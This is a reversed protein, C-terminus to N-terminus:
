AAPMKVMTRWSLPAVGADIRVKFVAGDVTFGQEQEIFPKDNGDLYAVELTDHMAQNALMFSAGSFADEDLRPDSVVDLRGRIPNPVRADVGAPDFEALLLSRAALENAVSTLLYKPAINLTAKGDKQTRMKAMAEGISAVSLAAATAINKHSNHFLDTGDSMKPNGSLVAFVLDGVTRIAARGMLRPIRTIAQLDDNIVAQRTISFLKGYTALVIEEGTDGITGYKYEAGEPVVDLNGFTGLDVRKAPRFDSLRGKSTFKEFSEEAEEYGKLMSKHAVDQLIYGFDSTSHTFAMGVMAMRDGSAVIGRDHLSARALEQMTFGNYRNDKEEAELGARAMLSAKISDGVLNGNGVHVTATPTAQAGLADLLQDKAKDVTVSMDLLCSNMLDSQSTHGAFLNSIATRRQQEQQEFEARLAVPDQAPASPQPAPAAAQPAEPAAPRVEPEPATTTAKASAAPEFFRKASKPMNAYERQSNLKAAVELAPTLQNAFGAAVAEAGTFWTEAKLLTKIEDETKGTKKQYASVLTSEVKELLEAYKRMDDSDGGQIGWPKHIMMMGNEPIHIVDAAMAIVSAMSAALGDIHAHVTAPHSALLNYIATGEFVDGGPSHIRLDIHTVNKLAKIDNAFQKATIGWYGIEDYLWVEAKNEGKAQISYWSNSLPQLAAKPSMLPENQKM